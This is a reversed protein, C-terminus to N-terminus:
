WEKRGPLEALLSLNMKARAGHEEKPKGTRIADRELSRREFLSRLPPIRAGWLARVEGDSHSAQFEISGM